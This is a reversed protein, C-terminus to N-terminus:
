ASPVILALSATFGHVACRGAVPGIEGACLLGALPLTGLKRGIAAADHHPQGFLGEGRGNCSCLIGAVPTRRTLKQRTEDLHLSLDLDATAADRMQFQITQGVRPMGGVAIAGSSQDVGILNRVLFDGRLFESRYEDAALGVLLNRQARTRIEEPLGNLTDALVQLAPRNSITEIWQAQAGTITWTEGIPDCGQSVMPLLEYDGGIALGVAGDPYSEGDLFLAVRRDDLGPSAFGGSLVANPYASSLATLLADGDTRFPDAFILWGKVDAPAVGTWGAWGTGDPASALMDHTFRATALNAGPLSLALLALAPQRELERDTGIIGVGSCGILCRAGTRQRAAHLLEPFSPAHHYSAFLILADLAPSELATLARDLAVEWVADDALAARALPVTVTM